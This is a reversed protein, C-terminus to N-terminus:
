KDGGKAKTTRSTSGSASPVAPEPGAESAPELAELHGAVVLAELNLPSGEAVTLVDGPNVGDVTRTGVVRYRAM